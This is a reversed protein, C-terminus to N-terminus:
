QKAGEKKIQREAERRCDFLEEAALLLLFVSLLLIKGPVGNLLLAARGLCPVACRVTGELEGAFVPHADAEKNADGKTLLTRSESDKELVRHTVRTGSKELRFTIVDGVQIDEFNVPQVYVASGAPIAPEMSGSTVALVQIGFISPLVLMAALALYCIVAFRCACGLGRSM